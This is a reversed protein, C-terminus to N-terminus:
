IYTHMCLRLIKPLGSDDDSDDDDEDDGDDDDDDGDDDAGSLGLVVGLGGRLYRPFELSLDLIASHVIIMLVMMMLMVVMM